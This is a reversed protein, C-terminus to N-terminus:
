KHNMRSYYNACVDIYLLETYYSNRGAVL